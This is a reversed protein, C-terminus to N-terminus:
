GTHRAGGALGAPGPSTGWLDCVHHSRIATDESASESPASPFRTCSSTWLALGCSSPTFDAHAPKRVETGGKDSLEASGGKQARAKRGTLAM